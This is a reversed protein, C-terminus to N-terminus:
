QFLPIVKPHTDTLAQEYLIMFNPYLLIFAPKWSDFFFGRSFYEIKEKHEAAKWMSNANSFLPAKNLIRGIKPCIQLNTMKQIRPRQRAGGLDLSKEIFFIIESRHLSQLIIERAEPKSQQFSIVSFNSESLSIHDM